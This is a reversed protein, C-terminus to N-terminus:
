ILKELIEQLHWSTQLNQLETSHTNNLSSEIFANIYSDMFDRVKIQQGGKAKLVSECEGSDGGSEVTYDVNFGNIGFYRYVKNDISSGVHFTCEIDNDITSITFEVKYGSQEYVKNKIDKVDFKNDNLFCSLISMGHFGLLNWYYHSDGDPYGPRTTWRFEFTKVKKLNVEEHITRMLELYPPIAFRFQSMIYVDEVPSDKLVNQIQAYTEKNRENIEECVSKECLIGKINKSLSLTLSQKIHELHDETATCLSILMPDFNDKCEKWEDRNPIICTCDNKKFWKTHHKGIRGNGGLVLVQKSRQKSSEIILKKIDQAASVCTSIKGSFMFWYNPIPNEIYTPREDNLTKLPLLRITYISKVYKIDDVNEIFRKAKEKWAEFRELCRKEDDYYNVDHKFNPYREKVIELRSLEVDYVVHKHKESGWPIIGYFPGDFFALAIASKSKPIDVIFEECLEYKYESIDYNIKEFEKNLMKNVNNVNAYTANILYDFTETFGNSCQVRFKGDVIEIKTIEHKLKTSITTGQLKDNVVTKAKEVDFISEPVSWWKEIYEKNLKLGTDSYSPGDDIDAKLNHEDLFQQYESSTINSGKVISYYHAFNDDPRKIAGDFMSVFQEYNGLTQKVTSSSRPYHYGMHVRCQNVYSAEALCEENKDFLTVDFDKLGICNKLTELELAISIGFFGCGIIGVKPM